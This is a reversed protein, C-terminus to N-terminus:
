EKKKNNITNDNHQKDDNANNEIVNRKDTKNGDQEIQNSKNENFIKGKNNAVYQISQCIPCCISIWRNVCRCIGVCVATDDNAYDHHANNIDIGSNRNNSVNDNNNVIELKEHQTLTSQILPSQQSQFTSQESLIDNSTNTRNTNNSNQNNSISNENHIVINDCFHSWVNSNSPDLRELCTPCLPLSFLHSSKDNPLISNVNNVKSKNLVEFHLAVAV